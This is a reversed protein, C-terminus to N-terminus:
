QWFKLLAVAVGVAAITLGGLQWKAKEVDV